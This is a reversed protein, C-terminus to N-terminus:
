DVVTRCRNWIETLRAVATNIRSKITGVPVNMIEAAERYKLGEYYVLQLTMRVPDSLENMAARLLERDEAQGARDAPSPEDSLMADDLSRGDCHPRDSPGLRELSVAQHRRNRRRADIAQHIAIAYLWPRFRRGAEFQECKLHVQLFTAQFADEAVEANGTYRRLYNYLTREHRRVLEAFVERDGTDRYQLLLEEDSSSLRDEGECCATNRVKCTASM